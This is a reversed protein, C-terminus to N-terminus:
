GQSCLDSAQGLSEEGRGCWRVVGEKRGAVQGGRGLSRVVEEVKDERPAAELYCLDRPTLGSEGGSRRTGKERKGQGLRGKERSRVEEEM